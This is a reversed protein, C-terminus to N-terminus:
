RNNANLVERQMLPKIPELDQVTLGNQALFDNLVTATNANKYKKDNAIKYEQFDKYLQQVRTQMGKHLETYKPVVDQGLYRQYTETTSTGKKYKDLAQKFSMKYETTLKGTKRDKRESLSLIGNKDEETIADPQGYIVKDMEKAYDSPSRPTGGGGGAAAKARAMIGKQDDVKFALWQGNQNSVSIQAGPNVDVMDGSAMKVKMAVPATYSVHGIDNLQIGGFVNKIDYDMNAQANLTRIAESNGTDVAIKYQQLLMQSKQMASQASRQYITNNIREVDEPTGYEVYAQRVDELSPKIGIEASKTYVDSIRSQLKRVRDREAAGAAVNGWQMGLYAGQTFSDNAM